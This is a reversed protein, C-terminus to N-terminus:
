PARRRLLQLLSRWRPSAMDTIRWGDATSRLRYTVVRTENNYPYHIRAQVVTADPTAVVDVTAGGPDQSDWMPEFDLNCEGERAACAQDALVAKTLTADLYRQLVLRGESFLPLRKDSETDTTEWAYQAYMGRVFDVPKAQAHLAMPWVTLVLFLTSLIARM